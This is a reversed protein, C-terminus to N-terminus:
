TESKCAEKLEDQCWEEEMREAESDPNQNIEAGSNIIKELKGSETKDLGLREGKTKNARDETSREEAQM